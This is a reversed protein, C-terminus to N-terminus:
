DEEDRDRGRLGRHEGEEPADLVTIARLTPEERSGRPKPCFEFEYEKNHSSHVEYLMHDCELCTAGLYRKFNHFPRRGGRSRSMYSSDFFPLRVFEGDYVGDDGDEGEDSGGNYFEYNSDDPNVAMFLMEDSDHSERHDDIWRGLYKESGCYKRRCSNKRV